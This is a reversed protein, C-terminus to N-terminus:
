LCISIEKQNYTYWVVKISWSGAFSEQSFARDRRHCCICFLNGSEIKVCKKCLGLPICEQHM